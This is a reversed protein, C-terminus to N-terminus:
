VQYTSKHKAQSHKIAAQATQYANRLRDKLNEKYSSNASNKVMNRNIGFVLDNPLILEREFPSFGTSYHVASNYAHSNRGIINRSQTKLEM